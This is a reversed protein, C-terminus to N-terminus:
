KHALCCQQLEGGGCFGSGSIPKGVLEKLEGRRFSAARDYQFHKAFRKRTSDPKDETYGQELNVATRPRRKLNLHSPM